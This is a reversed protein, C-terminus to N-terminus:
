LASIYLKSMSAFNKLNLEEFNQMSVIGGKRLARQVRADKANAQKELVGCMSEKVVKYSYRM